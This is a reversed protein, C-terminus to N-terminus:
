SGAKDHLNPMSLDKWSPNSKITGIENMFHSYTEIKKPVVDFFVDPATFQDVVDEIKEKSNEYKLYIKAAEKPNKKTFEIAEEFANTVVQYATPNAKAWKESVTLLIFGTPGGLVDYSNLITRIRGKGTRLERFQFPPAAFHGALESKESMLAIMSDPHPLSVTKDDLATAGGCQKKAAMQLTVAQVSTKVTPLGIKKELKSFDCVTKIEASNTNLLMPLAVISSAIKFDKTKDYLMILTPPGVAGFQVENAILADRIMGAGGLNKLEIDLSVGAKKAYKEVLNNEKLVYLPTYAWGNQHAFTVKKVDASGIEGIMVSFLILFLVRM